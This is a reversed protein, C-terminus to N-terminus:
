FLPMNDKDLENAKAREDKNQKLAYEISYKMDSDINQQWMFWTIYQRDTQVSELITKGKHKGFPRVFILSPEKTIQVCEDLLHEFIQDTRNESLVDFLKEFVAILVVVDSMADHPKIPRFESPITEDVDLYHRLYQLSRSEIDTMEWLLRRALKMTCIVKWLELGHQSLLQADFEANHAIFYRQQNNLTSLMQYEHSGVFPQKSCVDATRIGHVAMSWYSINKTPKFLESMWIRSWWEFYMAWIQIVEDDKNENKGTTETDFFVVHQSINPDILMIHDTTLYYLWRSLIM